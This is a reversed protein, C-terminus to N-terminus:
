PPPLITFPTSWTAQSIKNDIYLTYDGPPLSPVLAVIENMGWSVVKCSRYLSGPKKPNPYVFSVKGPKVGFCSGAVTVTSGVVGSAPTVSDIAVASFTFTSDMREYSGGKPTFSVRYEMFGQAPAKSVDAVIQNDTWSVVKLANTAGTTADVLNVKGKAAGFGGASTLTLRTGVAGSEPTVDSAASAIGGVLAVAAVVVIWSYLRGQQARM